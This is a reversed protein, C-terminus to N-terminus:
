AAYPKQTAMKQKSGQLYDLVGFLHRHLDGPMRATIFQGDEVLAEDVFTAGAKEVDDKIEPWAAIRKGSIVGAEALILAGHCISAIPKSSSVFERVLNLVKENKRLANPAKGGPLYLLCFDTAHLGDVSITDTLGFGHKGAFEGGNETAVIVQYGEETLRYYPYFFETEEAGEGTIILVKKNKALREPIPAVKHPDHKDMTNFVDLIGM